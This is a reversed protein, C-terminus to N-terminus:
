DKNKIIELFLKNRLQADNIVLEIDIIYLHAKIDNNYFYFIKRADGITFLPFYNQTRIVEEFDSDIKTIVYGWVQNIKSSNDRIIKINRPLEWLAKCKEDQSAGIGKFEIIVADKDNSEHQSYFIAIDPRIAAKYIKQYNEEIKKIIQKVTTDSAAYNYTMFKDDLLWLNSEGIREIITEGTGATKAPMFLDHLFSEQKTNNASLTQLADLIMQRYLIYQALERASIDEVELVLRNFEDEDLNNSKILKKFSDKVRTKEQKYKKEANDVINSKNKIISTDQKIYKALYPYEEICENIVSDNEVKIQPYRELLIEGIRNRLQANIQQFTIPNDFTTNIENMDITFKNREDNVRQDLYRSTLLMITSTKDPLREISVSETFKTVTREHGCYFLNKKALGDTLFAYYLIFNYKIHDEGNINFSSEELSTISNNDIVLTEGSISINITFEKGKRKLLFLKALLHHEISEKIESLIANARDDFVSNQKDKNKRTDFFLSTVNNFSIKTNKSKLTPEENVTIHTKEDFERNFKIRVIKKDYVSEITVESFVKLWTLRGVGKCGINVKRTTWLRKFSDLNEDTFGDGNDIITFGNIKKSTIGDLVSEDVDFHLKIETAYAELSNSIAEYVPQMFHVKNSLKEIATKVDVQLSM